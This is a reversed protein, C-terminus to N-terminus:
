DMDRVCDCAYVGSVHSLNINKIRWKSGDGRDIRGGRVPTVGEGLDAADLKITAGDGALVISGLNAAAQRSLPGFLTNAVSLGSEDDTALYTVTETGFVFRSLNTFASVM